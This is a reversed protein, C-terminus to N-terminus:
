RFPRGLSAGRRYEVPGSCVGAREQCLASAYRSRADTRRCSSVGSDGPPAFGADPSGLHSVPGTSHRGGLVWLLVRVHEGVYKVGRGERSQQQVESLACVCDRCLQLAGGVIGQRRAGTPHAFETPGEFASSKCRLRIFAGWVVAAILLGVAPDSGAPPRCWHAGRGRGGPARPGRRQSLPGTPM